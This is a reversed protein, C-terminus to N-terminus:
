ARPIRFGITTGRDSASDVAVSGGHARVIEHVIFLGFGISGRGPHTKGRKLPQFLESWLDEPIPTGWNHLDLGVEREDGVVRLTIPADSGYAAANTILNTIAQALRDPDWRGQTSGRHEILIERHPYSVKLEDVIQQALELLAFNARKIPLESGYLVQTYDLLDHILRGARGAASKITEFSRQSAQTVDAGRLAVEASLLIVNLPARLDHSVIGVLQQEFRKRLAQEYRRLKERQEAIEAFVSVKATLVEPVFPKQLFDVVGCAYSKRIERVDPVHATLMIIPPHRNPHRERILSATEAGDLGPMRLDLLVVAFDHQAVLELAEQGTHALVLTLHLPALVAELATLNGPHDDVLLVTPRWSASNVQWAAQDGDFSPVQTM